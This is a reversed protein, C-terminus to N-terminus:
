SLIEEWVAQLSLLESVCAKYKLMDNGAQLLAATAGPGGVDRGM